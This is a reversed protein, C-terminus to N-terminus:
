LRGQAQRLPLSEATWRASPGVEFQVSNLLKGGFEDAQDLLDRGRERGLFDVADGGVFQRAFLLLYDQLRNLDLDLFEDDGCDLAVAGSEAGTHGGSGVHTGDGVLHALTEAAARMQFRQAAGGYSFKFDGLGVGQFFDFTPRTLYFSTMGFRASLGTLGARLSASPFRSNGAMFAYRGEEDVGALEQRLKGGDGGVFGGGGADAASAGDVKGFEGAGALDFDEVSLPVQDGDGSAYGSGQEMWSDDECTILRLEHPSLRGRSDMPSFARNRQMGRTPRVSRDTAKSKSKSKSKPKSKSRSKSRSKAKRM